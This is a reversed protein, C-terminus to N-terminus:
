TNKERAEEIADMDKRNELCVLLLIGGILPPLALTLLMMLLTSPDLRRSVLAVVIIGTAVVGEFTFLIAGIREWRLAVVASFIFIGGPILIHMFWNFWGDGEVLASGIGFWLWFVIAVIILIWAGRCQWIHRNNMIARESGRIYLFRYAMAGDQFEGFGIM